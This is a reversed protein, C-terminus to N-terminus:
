VALRLIEFIENEGLRRLNGVSKRGVMAKQALERLRDAPLGAQRLRVPMGISVYFAELRHIMEDIIRERDGFDYDVGFVRVALQVFRDPNTEHVYKMWAPFVIALGAGHAIDYAGSLEHEIDHSAWDGVRGTDLLGNHAITGVWMIEARADYNCNDRLVVPTYNMITRLSGEIMRDTLDVANENTFYREFLHAMIDSAGCATQFNPLSFTLEPNLIAFRPILCEGTIYRKLGTKEDTVVSGNSTESGAAPLTLVVGVPLAREVSPPSAMYREWIDGDLVAGAAIAKASDIVSGGGVALVLDINDKRCVAIGERVLSLRPNPKVGGLEFVTLGAERLASLVTAHLGSARVSEGGYHLLLRTGHGAALKGVQGQTGRGFVIRAPNWYTFDRM